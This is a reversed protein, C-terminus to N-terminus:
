STGKPSLDVVSCYQEYVVVASPLFCSCFDDLKLLGNWTTFVVSNVFLFSARDRLLGADNEPFTMLGPQAQQSQVLSLFRGDDIGITASTSGSAYGHEAANQPQNCRTEQGKGASNRHVPTAVGPTM